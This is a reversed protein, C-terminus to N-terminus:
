FPVDDDTMGENAPSSESSGSPQQQANRAAGGQAADGRSGLFQVREGVVRLKSRKQGDQTEWQDYKLRGEVLAQRGKNLYEACTEAQRGMVSVDVFCVEEKQQGDQTRYRRNMALGFEAVATGSPLYKLQPDRTLNGILLVKNLPM